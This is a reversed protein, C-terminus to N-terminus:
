GGAYRHGASVCKGESDFVCRQIPLLRHLALGDRTAASMSVERSAISGSRKKTTAHGYTRSCVGPAMGNCGVVPLDQGTQTSLEPVLGLLPGCSSYYHSAAQNSIGTSPSM